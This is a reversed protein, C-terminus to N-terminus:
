PRARPGFTERKRPTPKAPPAAEAPKTAFYSPPRDLCRTDGTPIPPAGSAAPPILLSGSRDPATLGEPARLSPLSQALTYPEESYDCTPESACGIALLAAAALVIVSTKQM